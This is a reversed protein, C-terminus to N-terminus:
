SLSMTNEHPLSELTGKVWVHLGTLRKLRKKDDKMGPDHCKARLLDSMDYGMMMMMMMTM